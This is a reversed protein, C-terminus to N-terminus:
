TYVLRDDARRNGCDDRRGDYEPSRQAAASTDRLRDGVITM